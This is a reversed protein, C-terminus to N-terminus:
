FESADVKKVTMNGNAVKYLTVTVRSFRTGTETPTESLAFTEEAEFTDSSGIYRYRLRYAGPAVSEATFSDGNKVFMSRAAPKKGDRYLRVVADGGGKTNDVKFTSLGGKAIQKTGNLYGTRSQAEPDDVPTKSAAIRQAGATPPTDNSELEALASIADKNGKNAAAELFPLNCREMSKRRAKMRSSIEGMAFYNGALMATRGLEYEDDPSPFLKYCASTGISYADTHGNDVLKRSIAMALELDRDEEKGLLASVGIKRMTSYDRSLAVRKLIERAKASNADIGLGEKLMLSYVYLADQDGTQIGPQLEEYVRRFQDLAGKPDKDGFDGDRLSKGLTLQAEKGGNHIALDLAARSAKMGVASPVGLESQRFLQSLLILKREDPWDKTDGNWGSMKPNTLLIASAEEVLRQDRSPKLYVAFTWWSAAAIIALALSIAILIRPSRSWRRQGLDRLDHVDIVDSQRFFISKRKMDHGLGGM